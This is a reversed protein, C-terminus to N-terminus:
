AKRVDESKRRQRRVQTKRERAKADENREERKGLCTDDSEDEPLSTCLDRSSMSIVWIPSSEETSSEETSVEEEELL